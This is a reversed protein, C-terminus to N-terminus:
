FQLEGEEVEAVEFNYVRFLEGLTWVDRIFKVKGICLELGYFIVYLIGTFLDFSNQLM